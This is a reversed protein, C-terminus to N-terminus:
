ISSPRNPALRLVVVVLFACIQGWFLVNFTQKELPRIFLPTFLNCMVFNGLCRWEWIEEGERLQECAEGGGLRCGGAWEKREGNGSKV